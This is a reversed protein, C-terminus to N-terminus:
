KRRTRDQLMEVQIRQIETLRQWQHSLLYDIKEHLHRIELEAKLNVQYDSESRVRDKTEQRKQSMMIVPAQVAAICSLVLNLLIFPYPDFAEREGMAGNIAIWIVLVVMFLILFSWSGGFAALGDACREGFTREEAFSEEVNQSIMEHNALSAAVERELTTLQGKDEEILEEFYLSRYRDLERRGIHADPTLEPHDRHIREQLPSRLAGLPTLDRLNWEEGSLACTGRKKRETAATADTTRKVDQVDPATM